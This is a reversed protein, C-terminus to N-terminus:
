LLTPRKQDIFLIEFNWVHFKAALKSKGRFDIECKETGVPNIEERILEM